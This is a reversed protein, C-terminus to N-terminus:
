DTLYRGALADLDLGMVATLFHRRGGHLRDIQELAAQLYGAKARYLDALMTAVQPRGTAALCQRYAAQARIEGVQNTLLYDDMITQEDVGLGTLILAATLGARDKGETCHWLVAGDGHSAIAQLVAALNALCTPDTVMLRYMDCMDARDGDALDGSAIREHTIGFAAAQFIPMHLHVVGSLAVDPRQGAEADTRLDIVTTLGRGALVAADAATLDHLNNARLLRNSIVHRGDAAALGGLDRANDAGQLPIRRDTM